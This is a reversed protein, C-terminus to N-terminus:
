LVYNITGGGSSYGVQDRQSIYTKSLLIETGTAKTM